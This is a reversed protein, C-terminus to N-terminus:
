SSKSVNRGSDSSYFSCRSGPRSSLPNLTSKSGSSCSGKVQKSKNEPGSDILLSPPRRGQKRPLCARWILNMGRRHAHTIMRRIVLCFVTPRSIGMMREVRFLEDSLYGM